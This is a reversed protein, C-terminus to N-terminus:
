RWDIRNILGDGTIQMAVGTDSKIIWLNGNYILAIAYGGGDELPAPSWAVTQPELGNAEEGPFLSRRNSGDRDIVALRYGSTDSQQPNIAELYAVNFSAQNIPSPGVATQGTTTIIPSAVPNAFMGVDTVLDVPAGGSVQLAVLNFKYVAAANDENGSAHNVTYIMKGDPSLAVGPVWAWDANTQYPPIDMLTVLAHSSTDVIGIGDPRAFLILAQTPWSFDTGWWGYVGGSSAGLVQEPNGAIGNPSMGVTYLDNNAQWGPTAERWAASSYAVQGANPDFAAFHVINKVGLDFVVIPDSALSAVWLSNIEDKALSKRSFLLFNGDDSLSFIRGDLDGTSVVLSRNVTSGEMIWANGASLYAIKGAIALPAFTAPSGVMVIETVPAKIVETKIISSSVEINDEYVRHYTVEELGNEGAQSLRRDGEPLAENKLERSEFRLIVQEVYAEEKVRIVTVRSDDSVLSDVGPEVRDLTGLQIHALNLIDLVTPGPPSEVQLDTGDVHINVTVLGPTTQNGSCGWLASFILILIIYKIFSGYTRHYLRM